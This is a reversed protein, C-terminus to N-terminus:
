PIKGARLKCYVRKLRNWVLAPNFFVAVLFYVISQPKHHTISALIAKSYWRNSIIQFYSLATNSLIPLGDRIFSTDNQRLAELFACYAKTMNEIMLSRKQNTVGLTDIVYHTLPEDINAMKGLRSYRCWLEFDECYLAKPNYRLATKRFMVSPHAFPNKANLLWSVIEEHTIPVSLTDLFNHKEDVLEVSTGCLYLDSDTDFLHSQQQLKDSKWWDGVDIRAILSGVASELGRNLSAILGMNVHNDIIKIRSDKQEWTKLLRLTEPLDDDKIIILEFDLFSQHLVSRLTTELAYSSPKYASLLISVLPNNKM